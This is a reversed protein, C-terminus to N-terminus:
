AEYYYGYEDEYDYEDDDDFTWAYIDVDEDPDNIHDHNHDFQQQNQHFMEQASQLDTTLQSLQLLLARFSEIDEVSASASADGLADMLIQRERWSTSNTNSNRGNSGYRFPRSRRATQRQRQQQQLRPNSEPNVKCPEGNEDLHAFFCGDGFPCWHQEASREFYKCKKRGAAEKYNRIIIEKQEACTPFFSSPVVYLSPTRCNPCAKTVSATNEAGFPRNENFEATVEKSRWTRICTLCFAHNCSVLLGFTTPEEFCIACRQEDDDDTNNSNSNLANARDHSFWCSDGRLCYGSMYWHCPRNAAYAPRATATSTSPSESSNELSTSSTSPEVAAAVSIPAPASFSSSLSSSSSDFAPEEDLEEIGTIDAM